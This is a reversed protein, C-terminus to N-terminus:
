RRVNEEIQSEDVLTEASGLEVSNSNEFNYNTVAKVYSTAPQQLQKIKNFIVDRSIVVRKNAADFLKYAGIFHYGVLIM